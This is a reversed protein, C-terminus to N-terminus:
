FARNFQCLAAYVLFLHSVQTRTQLGERFIPLARLHFSVIGKLRPSPPGTKNGSELRRVAFRRGANTTCASFRPVPKGWTITAIIVLLIARALRSLRTVILRAEECPLCVPIRISETTIVSLRAVIRSVSISRVM